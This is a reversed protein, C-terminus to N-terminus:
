IQKQVSIWHCPVHRSCYQIAFLKRQDPEARIGPQRIERERADVPQPSDERQSESGGRVDDCMIIVLVRPRPSPEESIPGARAILQWHIM